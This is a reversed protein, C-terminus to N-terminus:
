SAAPTAPTPAPTNATVAAALKDANANIQDALAQVQPDTSTQKVQDALGQILTLISQDVSTERAVAAALNDTAQSMQNVQILLKDIKSEVRQLTSLLQTNACRRLRFM